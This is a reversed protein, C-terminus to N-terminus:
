SPMAYRRGGEGKEEKEAEEVTEKPVNSERGGKRRNTVVEVEVKDVTGDLGQLFRSKVTSISWTSRKGVLGSHGRKPPWEGQEGIGNVIERGRSTTRCRM